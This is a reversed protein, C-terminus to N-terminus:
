SRVQSLRGHLQATLPADPPLEGEPEELVGVLTQGALAIWITRPGLHISHLLAM